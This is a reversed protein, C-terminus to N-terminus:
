PVRGQIKAIVGDVQRLKRERLEATFYQAYEYQPRAVELSAIIIEIDHETLQDSM